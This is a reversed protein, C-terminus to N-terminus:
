PWETAFTPEDLRETAAELRGLEKVRKGRCDLVAPRKCRVLDGPRVSPAVDFLDAWEVDKFRTVERLVVFYIDSGVQQQLALLKQDAGAEKSLEWRQDYPGPAECILGIRRAEAVLQDATTARGDCFARVQASIDPSPGHDSVSLRSDEITDVPGGFETGSMLAQDMLNGEPAGRPAPSKGPSDSSKDAEQRARSLAQIADRLDALSQEIRRQSERITRLSEKILLMSERMSSAGPSARKRRAEQYRVWAARVVLATLALNILGSVVIAIAFVDMDRISEM